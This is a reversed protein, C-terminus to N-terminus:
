SQSIYRMNKTHVRYSPQHAPCRRHSVPFHRCSLSLLLSPAAMHYELCHFLCPFAEKPLNFQENNIKM